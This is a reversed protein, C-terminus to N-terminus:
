HEVSHLAAQTLSDTHQRLPRTSIPHQEPSLRSDLSLIFFAARSSHLASMSYSIEPSSVASCSAAVRHKMLLTGLFAAM